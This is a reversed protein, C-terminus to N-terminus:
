RRRRRKKVEEPKGEGLPLEGESSEAEAEDNGEDEGESPKEESEKVDVDGEEAACELVPEVEAVAEAEKAMSLEEGAGSVVEGTADDILEKEECERANEIRPHPKRVGGMIAAVSSGASGATVAGMGPGVPNGVAEGAGPSVASGIAEMVSVAHAAAVRRPTEILMRKGNGLIRYEAM